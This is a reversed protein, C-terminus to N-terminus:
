FCRVQRKPKCATTLHDKYPEDTVMYGHGDAFRVDDEPNKMPMHRAGLNGDM